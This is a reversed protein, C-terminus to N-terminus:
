RTKDRLIYGVKYETKLSDHLDLKKRLQAIHMDVTRTGGYYDFGWVLDLIQERSLVTNKREILLTLLDYEKATLPIQVGDKHVSRENPCISVNGFRVEEPENVANKRYRERARLHAEVRALLELPEFPKSIYDDAGLKLGFVRDPISTKATMFIVPINKDKIRSMVEYGDMGPLMIDLLILNPPCNDCTMKEIQKLGDPGDVAQTVSYHDMELTLRVLQRIDDDDEIVLIRSM